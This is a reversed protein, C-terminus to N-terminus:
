ADPKVKVVIKGRARGSNLKEYAQPVEDWAWESDIVVELKGDKVLRECEELFAKRGDLMICAYRPGWGLWGWFSRLAQAPYFYNTLSGGMAARSTKDGVITTYSGGLPLDADRPHLLTHCISPLQKGGVCDVITLYGEAPRLEALRRAVDETTYDIVTDAGLSKVLDANRGSCTAIVKFHQKRAAYQVAYVGVGSSGGLVVITPQREHSAPSTADPNASTPLLTYPPSLCTIATLWVLPLSAAQAFSLQPPKPIACTRSMDFVAVQSLAHTLPGGLPNFSMGMIETGVQLDKVDSGKALVTGSFDEALGKPYKLAPLRFIPLNSLQVDVPNLAAAKVEVMIENPKLDAPKPPHVPICELTSPFPPTSHSWAKFSSSM